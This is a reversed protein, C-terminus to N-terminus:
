KRYREFPVASGVFLVAALLIVPLYQAKLVFFLNGLLSVNFQVNFGSVLLLICYLAASIGAVIMIKRSSIKVSKNVTIRHAPVYGADSFITGIMRIYIVALVIDLIHKVVLDYLTHVIRLSWSVNTFLARLGFSLGLGSPLVVFRALLCSCVVTIVIRAIRFLFEAVVEKKRFGGKNRQVYLLVSTLIYNLLFIAIIFYSGFTLASGSLIFCLMIFFVAKVFIDKTEYYAYYLHNWRSQVAGKKQIKIFWRIANVTDRIMLGLFVFYVASVTVGALTRYINGKKISFLAILRNIASVPNVSVSFLSAAGFIMTLLIGIQCVLHVVSYTREFANIKREADKQEAPQQTQVQKAEAPQQAQAETEAPSDQVSGFVSERENAANM